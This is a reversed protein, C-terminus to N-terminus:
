LQNALLAAVRAIIQESVVAKSALPLTEHEGRASFITVRNTDVEFGADSAAIDNAVLLDLGKRELKARANALLNESEAAFGVVVRPYGTQARRGKVAMLIDPNRALM